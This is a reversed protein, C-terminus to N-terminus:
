KHAQDVEEKRSASLTQWTETDVVGTFGVLATWEVMTQQQSTALNNCQYVTIEIDSFRPTPSADALIVKSYAATNSPNLVGYYLTATNSGGDTRETGFEVSPTTAINVASSSGEKIQIYNIVNTADNPIKEKVVWKANSAIQRSFNGSSGPPETFVLQVPIRKGDVTIAKNTQNVLIPKSQVVTGHVTTTFYFNSEKTMFPNGGDDSVENASMAKATLTVNAPSTLTSLNDITVFDVKGYLNSSATNETSLSTGSEWTLQLPIGTITRLDQGSAVYFPGRDDITIPSACKELPIWETGDWVYIGTCFPDTESVNFVVLGIHKQKQNGGDDTDNITFDGLMLENPNKLEVRPLMLGRQATVNESDSEQQKLDLLSLWLAVM